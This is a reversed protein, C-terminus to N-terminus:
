LGKQLPTEPQLLTQLAFLPEVRLLAYRLSLCLFLCQYEDLAAAVHGHSLTAKM